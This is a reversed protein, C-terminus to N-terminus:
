VWLRGGGAIEATQFYWGFVYRCKTFYFGFRNLFVPRNYTLVIIRFYFTYIKDDVTNKVLRFTTIAALFSPDILPDCTPTTFDSMLDM